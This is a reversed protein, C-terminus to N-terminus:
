IASYFVELLTSLVEERVAEISKGKCRFGAANRHGGGDFKKAVETVDCEGKARLSVSVMNDKAEKIFAVVKVSKLSRPYDVFGEVDQYSAGSEDFMKHTAFILALQDDEHLEMSALVMELLKLREKTFNDYVKNSVIEPRVGLGVLEAAIALTRAGTCEYKFSGTDTAIAVYLNFAAHTSVTAGLERALEYVMEGTSSCGPEVWRYDGFKKHSKHHDLVLVPKNNLFDVKYKGLRAAEGADLSITVVKDDADAVFSFVTDLDHCVNKCDPMFDFLHSVPEETFSLVNKGMGRLIEALGFLSGLADGDPHVHTLLIFDKGEQIIRLIDEPIKSTTKERM